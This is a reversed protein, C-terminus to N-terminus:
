ELDADKNLKLIAHYYTWMLKTEWKFKKDMCLDGNHKYLICDFGHDKFIKDCEKWVRHHEFDWPNPARWNGPGWFLEKREKSNHKLYYLLIKKISWFINVYHENAILVGVNEGKTNKKINQFLKAQLSDVCHHFSACLVTYNVKEPLNFDKFDGEIVKVKSKDVNFYDLLYSNSKARNISPEVCYVKKVNPNM